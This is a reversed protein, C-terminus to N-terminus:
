MFCLFLNNGIVNSIKWGADIGEIDDGNHYYIFRPRDADDRRRFVWRGNHTVPENSLTVTTDVYSWNYRMVEYEGDSYTASVCYIVIINHSQYNHSNCIHLIKNPCGFDPICQECDTAVTTSPKNPWFEWWDGKSFIWKVGQKKAGKGDTSYARQNNVEYDDFWYHYRLTEYVINTDRVWKDKLEILIELDKPLTNENITPSPTPAATPSPTPEITERGDCYMDFQIGMTCTFINDSSCNGYIINGNIEDSVIWLSTNYDYYIFKENNVSKFTWQNNYQSYYTYDNYGSSDNFCYIVSIGSPQLQDASFGNCKHLVSESCNALITDEPWGIYYKSMEFTPRNADYLLTDSSLIWGVSETIPDDTDDEVYLFVNILIRNNTNSQYIKFWESSTWTINGTDDYDCYEYLIYNTQGNYEMPHTCYSFGNGIELGIWQYKYSSEFAAIQLTTPLGNQDLIAITQQERFEPWKLFNWAADCIQTILLTQLGLSIVHNPTM